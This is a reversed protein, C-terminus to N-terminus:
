QVHSATCIYLNHKKLATFLLLSGKMIKMVWKGWKGDLGDEELVACSLLNYNLDSVHRVNKLMYSSGSDFRLYIDGIGIVTCKKDNAM